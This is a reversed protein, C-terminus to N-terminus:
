RLRRAIFTGRHSPPSRNITLSWYIRGVIDDGSRRGWFRVTPMAGPSERGLVIEVSDADSGPRTLITVAGYPYDRDTAPGLRACGSPIQWDHAECFRGNTQATASGTPGAGGSLVLLGDFRAENMPRYLTCYMLAGECGPVMYPSTEFTFTDLLTTLEYTGALQHRPSDTISECAAMMAAASCLLLIPAGRLRAESHSPVIM